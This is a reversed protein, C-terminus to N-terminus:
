WLLHSLFKDRVAIINNIWILEIWKSWEIVITKPDTQIFILENLYVIKSLSHTLTEWEYLMFAKFYYADHLNDLQISLM